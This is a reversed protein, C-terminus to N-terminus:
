ALADVSGRSLETISDFRSHSQTPLHRARAYVAYHITYPAPPWADFSSMPQAQAWWSRRASRNLQDCCRGTATDTASLAHDARVRTRAFVIAALLLARLLPAAAVM